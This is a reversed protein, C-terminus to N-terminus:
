HLRQIISWMLDGLNPSHFFFAVEGLVNYIANFKIRYDSNYGSVIDLATCAFGSQKNVILKAAERFVEANM